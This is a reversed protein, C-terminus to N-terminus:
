VSAIISSDIFKLLTRASAYEWIYYFSWLKLWRSGNWMCLGQWLVAPLHFLHDPRTKRMLLRAPHRIHNSSGALVAWTYTYVYQVLDITSRSVECRLSIDFRASFSVNTYMSTPVSVRHCDDNLFPSCTLAVLRSLGHCNRGDLRINSKDRPM